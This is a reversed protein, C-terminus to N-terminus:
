FRPYSQQIFLFQSQFFKEEENDFSIKDNFGYPLYMSIEKECM